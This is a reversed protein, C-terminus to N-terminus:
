EGERSKRSSQIERDILTNVKGMHWGLSFAAAFALLTVGAEIWATIM